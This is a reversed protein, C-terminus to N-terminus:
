DDLGIEHGTDYPNEMNSEKVLHDCRMGGWANAEYNKTSSREEIYAIGDSSFIRITVTKGTLDVPASTLYILAPNEETSEEALTFDKLSVELSNSYTKGTITLNELGFSGKQVFVEEDTTLSLKTYTGAPLGIAKIRIMTNLMQFTFRLSGSSSSTGGSALYFRVGEYNSVVSQVQNEFSVPIANRDLYMNGVFPYYCYYTSNDRLAWGGGNFSAVNTGVGDEMSFFVQAGQNPYIGVTDSEEWGFMIDNDGEQSFSVRTEGEEGLYRLAPVEFIVREVLEGEDLGTKQDPGFENLRSCAALIGMSAALLVYIYKM